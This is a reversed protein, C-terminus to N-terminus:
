RSPHWHHFRGKNTQITAVGDKVETDVKYWTLYKQKENSRYVQISETLSTDVKFKITMVKGGETVLTQPNLVIFDSAYDSGVGMKGGMETIMKHGNEASYREVFITELGTLAEAQVWIGEAGSCLFVNVYEYSQKSSSM